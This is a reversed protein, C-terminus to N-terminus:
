WQNDMNSIIFSGLGYAIALAPIVLLSWPGYVQYAYYGAFGFFVIACLAIVGLFMRLFHVM